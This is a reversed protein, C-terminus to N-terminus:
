IPAGLVVTGALVSLTSAASPSSMASPSARAPCIRRWGRASRDWVPHGRLVLLHKKAFFEFVSKQPYMGKKSGVGGKEAPLLISFRSLRHPAAESLLSWVAANADNAATIRPSPATPWLPRASVM